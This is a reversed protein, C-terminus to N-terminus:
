GHVRHIRSVDMLQEVLTPYESMIEKDDVESEAPSEDDPQLTHPVAAPEITHSATDPKFSLEMMQGVLAKSWIESVHGVKLVTRVMAPSSKEAKGDKM